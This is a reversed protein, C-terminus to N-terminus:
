KWLSANGPCEILQLAGDVTGLVPAVHGSNFIEYLHEGAGELTLKISSIETDFEPEPADDENSGSRSLKDVLKYSAALEILAAPLSEDRSYSLGCVYGSTAVTPLDDDNYHATGSFEVDSFNNCMLICKADRKRFAFVEFEVLGDLDAAECKEINASLVVASDFECEALVENGLHDALNDPKPPGTSLELLPVEIREGAITLTIGICYDSRAIRFLDLEAKANALVQQAFLGKFSGTCTSQLKTLSPYNAVVAAWSNDHNSALYWERNVQAANIIDQVDLFRMVRSMVPVNSTNAAQGPFNQPQTWKNTFAPAEILQLVQEITRTYFDEIQPDEDVSVTISTLSTFIPRGDAPPPDLVDLDPIVEEFNMIVEFPIEPFLGAERGTGQLM